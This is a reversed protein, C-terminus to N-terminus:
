PISPTHFNRANRSAKLMKAIGLERISALIAGFNLQRHLKVALSVSQYGFTGIMSKHKQHPSLSTCSSVFLILLFSTLITKIM